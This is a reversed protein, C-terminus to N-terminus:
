NQEVPPEAPPIYFASVIFTVKQEKLEMFKGSPAKNPPFTYVSLQKVPFFYKDNQLTNFFRLVNELTGQVTIKIPFEWLCPESDLQDQVFGIRPLFSVAAAGSAPDSIVQLQNANLEQFFFKLTWLQLIMQYVPEKQNESIQLIKDSLQLNKANFIDKLQNALYKFDIRSANQIFSFDANVTKKEQMSAYYDEIRESFFNTARNRIQNSIERLGLNKKVADGNMKEQNEKYYKELVALDMPWQTQKDKELQIENEAHLKTFTVWKPLIYLWGFVIFAVCLCLIVYVLCKHQAPLDKYEPKYSM